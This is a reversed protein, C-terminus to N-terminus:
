PTQRAVSSPWTESTPRSPMEGLVRTEAAASLVILTQSAAVSSHLCVSVAWTPAMVHKWCSSVLIMLPLSPVSLIHSM